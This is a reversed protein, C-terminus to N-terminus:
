PNIDPSLSRFIRSHRRGESGEGLEPNGVFEVRRKRATREPTERIITPSTAERSRAARSDETNDPVPESIGGIEQTEAVRHGTWAEIKAKLKDRKDRALGMSSSVPAQWVAVLSDHVGNAISLADCADHCYYHTDEFDLEIRDLLLKMVASNNLCHVNNRQMDSDAGSNESTKSGDDAGDAQNRQCLRKRAGAGTTTLLFQRYATHYLPEGCGAARRAGIVSDPTGMGPTVEGVVIIGSKMLAAFVDNVLARRLRMTQTFDFGLASFDPWVYEDHAEFFNLTRMTDLKGKDQSGYRVSARDEEKAIKIAANSDLYVGHDSSCM